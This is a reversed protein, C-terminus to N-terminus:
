PRWPASAPSGRCSARAILPMCGSDIQVDTAGLRDFAAANNHVDAFYAARRWRSLM